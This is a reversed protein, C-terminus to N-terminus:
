EEWIKQKKAEWDAKISALDRHLQDELEAAEKADGQARATAIRSRLFTEREAIKAQYLNNIEAIRAKQSESLTRQSEGSNSFRELAKEFASKMAMIM